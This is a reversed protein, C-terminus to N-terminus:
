AEVEFILSVSAGQHCNIIGKNNKQPLVRVWAGAFTSGLVFFGWVMDHRECGNEGAQYLGPSSDVFEQVLWDKRNMATKILEEWEGGPIRKGILIDKGGYGKAPKLIFKDKNALLFNPLKITGTGYTTSGPIMKRSWPVYKDIVRKEEDSFANKNEQYNSLLALNLKNSLLDTIPGTILRVNGAKFVELVPPSVIGDYLEVLAHIKRGQHYIEGNIVELHTYDGMFVQGTLSPASGPLVEKYLTDLYSGLSNRYQAFQRVAFFINLQGDDRTRKCSTSHIVHELFRRILNKNRIIVGHQKLFASIVPHNLYLAEWLPVYWGGLNATVNYELCQLGSSGLIFDGRAVLQQLHHVTVGELQMKVTNAPLEYYASIKKVDNNFLRQPLSKIMTSLKVSAAQFEKINAQNVFTPWPQLVFLPDNLDLSKFCSARLAQPNNKVFRLFQVSCDSLRRHAAEIGPTIEM